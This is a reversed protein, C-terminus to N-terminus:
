HGQEIRSRIWESVESEVWAVGRMGLHRNKPFTGNRIYLYITSRALGTRNKVEPLRIFREKMEHKHDNANNTPEEFHNTM